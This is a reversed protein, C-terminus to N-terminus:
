LRELMAIACAAVQVAEARVYDVSLGLQCYELIARQLEGCEEGIILGRTEWGIADGGISRDGFKELQRRREAAIADMIADITM